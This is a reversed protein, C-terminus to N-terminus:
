GADVAGGTRWYEGGARDMFEEDVLGRRLAATDPHRQGLILNVMTESYRRGLEFDQVVWEYLVRRKALQAPIKIIRGDRVFARMVREAEPDVGPDTEGADMVNGM